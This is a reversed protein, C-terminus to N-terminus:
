GVLVLTQIQFRETATIRRLSPNWDLREFMGDQGRAAWFPKRYEMHQVQAKLNNEDANLRGTSGDDKIEVLAVQQPTSRGRVGVAFDPFFSRGNPLILKSAWPTNHPTRLWWLILGSDDKDVMEAFAAEPGNMDGPFIGHAALRGEPLGDREKLPDPIPEAPEVKRFSAMTEKVATKLADPNGLAGLDIARRLDAEEFEIGDRLASAKLEALLALKLLRPNISDNFEFAGQAEDAIRRNSLRVQMQLNQKDGLFLDRLSVDASQRRRTVLRVLDGKEIFGRAVSRLFEDGDYVDPAPPKEAMLREPVGLDRRLKYARYSPGISVARAVVVGPVADKPLAEGFLPTETAARKWEGAVISRDQTEPAMTRVAEPVIGAEILRNLRFQREEATVPPKLARAAPEAAVGPAVPPAVAYDVVDLVDSVGRISREVAEIERAAAELGQQVEADSLFVYGRDLVPDKGHIPRVAAHVRMIRGVVQMGFDRGRNPRVSVLTWARPADFGTAVAMKFVLVQRSPDYALTHFNADPQGSTHVAIAPEPVGIELLKAKVRDVPDPGGQEQDEVQVLMLPTLEIERARLRESILSHQTWGATLAATELDLYKEVEDPFRVIGLMLGRKNLGATVADRRAVEVRWEVTLGASKAFEQLRDDNPTATALLTIDPQLVELYFQSAVTTSRFAIHAEDIVVGIRFGEERLIELMTDLSKVSESESRIKRADKVNTAVSAWTQVFVDGDRTTMAERDTSLDRLRLGACQASLADRTQAVLGAFPAFWLWVMPQPLTGTAAELARGLMLTKGTGTPAQLLVTGAKLAITRADDPRQAIDRAVQRITNTMSAVADAQFAALSYRQSM